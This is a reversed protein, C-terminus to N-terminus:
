TYWRLLLLPLFFALLLPLPASLTSGSSCRFRCKTKYVDGVLAKAVIVSSAVISSVEEKCGTNSSAAYLCRELRELSCCAERVDRPDSANFAKEGVQRKFVNSCLSTEKIAAEYFCECRVASTLWALIASATLLLPNNMDATVQM